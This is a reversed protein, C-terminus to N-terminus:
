SSYSVMEFFVGMKSTAKLSPLAQKLTWVKLRLSSGLSILVRIHEQHSYFIPIDVWFLLTRFPNLWIVYMYEHTFLEFGPYINEVSIRVFILLPAYTLNHM